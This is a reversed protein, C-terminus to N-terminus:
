RIYRHFFGQLNSWLVFAKNPIVNHELWIRGLWDRWSGVKDEVLVSNLFTYVHTSKVGDVEVYIVKDVGVFHTGGPLSNHITQDVWANPGEITIIRTIKKM